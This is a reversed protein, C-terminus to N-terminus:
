PCASADGKTRRVGVKSDALLCTIYISLVLCAVVQSNQMRAEPFNLLRGPVMLPIRFAALLRAIHHPLCLSAQGNTHQEQLVLLCSDALKPFPFPAPESDELRVQAPAPHCIRMLALRLSITLHAHCPGLAAASLACHLM